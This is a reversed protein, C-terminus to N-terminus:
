RWLTVTLGGRRSEGDSGRAAGGTCWFAPSWLAREAWVQKAWSIGPWQEHTQKCKVEWSFREQDRVSPSTERTPAELADRQLSQNEMSVSVWRTYKNYVAKWHYHLSQSHSSRSPDPETLLAAHLMHFVIPKTLETRHTHSHTLKPM